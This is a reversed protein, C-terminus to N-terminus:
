RRKRVFAHDMSPDVAAIVNTAFRRSSGAVVVRESVNGLNRRRSKIPQTLLDNPRRVEGNRRPIMHLNPLGAAGQAWEYEVRRSDAILDVPKQCPMASGIQGITGSFFAFGDQRSQPPGGIPLVPKGKVGAPENKGIAVVEGDLIANDVRLKPLAESVPGFKGTWDNGQRTFMQVRKGKLHAQARYGDWKIEHAWKPGSPPKTVLEPNVMEVFGPKVPRGVISAPRNVLPVAATAAKRAM